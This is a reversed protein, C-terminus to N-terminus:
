RPRQITFPLVIAFPEGRDDRCFLGPERAQAAAPLAAALLLSLLAARM